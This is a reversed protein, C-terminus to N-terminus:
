QVIGFITLLSNYRISVIVRVQLDKKISAPPMIACALLECILFASFLYTRSSLMNDLEASTQKDTSKVNSIWDM